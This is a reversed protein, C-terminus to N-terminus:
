LRRVQFFRVADGSTPINTLTVTSGTGEVPVGFMVWNTSTLDDTTWVQYSRGAESPWSLGVAQSAETQTGVSFPLGTPAYPAGELRAEELEAPDLVASYVRADDFWASPTRDSSTSAAGGIRFDNTTNIIAGANFTVADGLQVACNSTTGCYFKLTNTSSTGDDTM